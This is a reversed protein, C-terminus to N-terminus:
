PHSRLQANVQALVTSWDGPKPQRYIRATGYWEAARYWPWYAVHPVLIHLSPHGIAGALHAVATDVTVIHRMTMLRDATDAFDLYDIATVGHRPADELEQMQISQLECGERPIAATLAGLDISRFKDRTNERNGSWAVGIVDRPEGPVTTVYPAAPIAPHIQQMVGMLNFVPCRYDFRGFDEPVEDLVEVDRYPFSAAVNQNTRIGGAIINRPTNKPQILTTAGFQRRILRRLPEPVAVTLQAGMAQLVPLYRLLMITDGYGHEHWLLLRKGQLREGCWVPLGQHWLTDGFLKFRWDFEAFGEGYRGLMLLVQARNWHAHPFEPMVAIATEFELLAEELWHRELNEVGRAMAEAVVDTIIEQSETLPRTPGRHIFAPNPRGNKLLVPVPDPRFQRL